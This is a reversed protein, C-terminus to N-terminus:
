VAQASKIGARYGQRLCLTSRHEAVHVLHRAEAFVRGAVSAAQGAAVGEHQVAPEPPFQVQGPLGGPVDDRDFQGASGAVPWRKPDDISRMRTQTGRLWSPRYEEACVRLITSRVITALEIELDHDLQKALGCRPTLM